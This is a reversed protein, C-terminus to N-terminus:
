EWEWGIAGSIKKIRKPPRIRRRLEWYSFCERIGHKDRMLIFHPYCKVIQWIKVCVVSASGHDHNDDHALGYIKVWTGEQLTEHKLTAKTMKRM